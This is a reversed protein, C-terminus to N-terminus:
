GYTLKFNMANKPNPVAVQLWAVSNRTLSNACYGAIVTSAGIRSFLNAARLLPRLRREPIAVIHDISFLFRQQPAISHLHCDAMTLQTAAFLNASGYTVSEQDSATDLVVGKHAVQLHYYVPGEALSALATLLQLNSSPQEFFLSM